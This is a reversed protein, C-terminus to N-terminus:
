NLFVILPMSFSITTNRVTDADPDTHTEHLTKNELEEHLQKEAEDLLPDSEEEVPPEELFEDLLRVDM